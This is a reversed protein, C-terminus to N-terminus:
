NPGRTNDAKTELIADVIWMPGAAPFCGSRESAVVLIDTSSDNAEAFNRKISARWDLATHDSMLKGFWTPDGQQAVQVFFSTDDEQTKLYAAESDFQQRGWAPDWIYALCGNVTGKYVDDPNASLTNLMDKLSESSNLSRNGHEPGWTGDQTYNQLPAQDVWILKDFISKGFQEAFSWIIACGLSGAICSPRALTKSTNSKDGPFGRNLGLWDVLEKLDQGLRAVTADQIDSRRGSRGHGRLDPAIVWYNERLAAINRDWVASSGTFGHLLILPKRTQDGHSQYAIEVGDATTFFNYGPVVTAPSPMGFASDTIYCHDILYVPLFTIDSPKEHIEDLNMNKLITSFGHPIGANSCIEEKKEDSVYSPKEDTTPYEILFVPKGANIVPEYDDCENFQLCQEVVNWQILNLVRNLIKAGNKLGFSMNRAHAADALFTVFDVATDTTLDLGTENEYGDINDPDVGDCGKKAAQDLRTLMIDRANASSTNLWYEGEWGDLGNGYDDPKFKAADPRWDEYSGASFYCIVKRGKGQAWAVISATSDFLDIDYVPVDIESENIPAQLVIQWKVGVAPQWRPDGSSSAGTTPTNEPNSDSTADTSSTTTSSHRSSLGVGLGVGLGILLLSAVVGTLIWCMRKSFWGQQNADSKTFHPEGSQANGDAM